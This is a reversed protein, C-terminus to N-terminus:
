RRDARSTELPVCGLIAVVHAAAVIVAAAFWRATIAGAESRGERGGAEALTM